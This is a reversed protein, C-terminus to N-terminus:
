ELQASKLNNEILQMSEPNFISYDLISDHEIITLDSALDMVSKEDFHNKYIHDLKAFQLNGLQFCPLDPISKHPWKPM